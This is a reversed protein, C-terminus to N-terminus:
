GAELSVGREKARQAIWPDLARAPIRPFNRARGHEALAAVLPADPPLEGDLLVLTTTPPMRAIMEPLAQWEEPFKAAAGGRRGRRTAGGSLRALLGEVIVLRNAALFPLADCVMQLHQPTLSKAELTNINSALMGDSDLSRKLATVVEARSYSDPGYLIHLM